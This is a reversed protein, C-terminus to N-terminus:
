PSVAPRPVDAGDRQGRGRSPDFADDRQLAVDGLVRAQLRLVEMGLLHFGDPGQRPPHGVVEVVDQRGDDPVPVDREHVHRVVVRPPVVDRAHELGGLPRRVEGLLEEQEAPPLGDLAPDHVQVVDHALHLFEQPAHDPLVDLAAQDVAGGAVPGARFAELTRRSLPAKRDEGVGELELLHQHVERRVCPVGHGPASSKGQLGRPDDQRLVEDGGVAEPFRAGVRHQGDRVRALPHVSSVSWRIKSGNKVVFSTPLPVPSPSATAYPM